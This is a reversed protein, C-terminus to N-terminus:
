KRLNIKENLWRTPEDLPSIHNPKGKWVRVMSIILFVTSALWFLRSGARSDTIAAIVTFM